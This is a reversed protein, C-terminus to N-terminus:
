PCIACQLTRTEERRVGFKITFYCTKTTEWHASPLYYVLLHTRLSPFIIFHVMYYVKTIMITFSINKKWQSIIVNCKRFRDITYRYSPDWIRSSEASGFYFKEKKILINNKLVYKRSSLSTVYNHFTNYGCLLRTYLRTKTWRQRM